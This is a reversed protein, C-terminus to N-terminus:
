RDLAVFWAFPEVLSDRFRTSSRVEEAAVHPTWGGPRLVEESLQEQHSIVYARFGQEPDHLRELLTDRSIGQDVYIFTHAAHSLACLKVPQGDDGSGPYYVTRSAFFNKRNFCPSDSALWEPFPEPDRRLIDVITRVANAQM